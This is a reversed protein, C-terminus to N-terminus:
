EERIQVFPRLPDEFHSKGKLSVLLLKKDLVFLDYWMHSKILEKNRYESEIYRECVPIHKWFMKAFEPNMMVIQSYSPISWKEPIIREMIPYIKFFNAMGQTRVSGVVCVRTIGKNQNTVEFVDKSIDYFVHRQVERLCRIINGASNSFVTNWVIFCSLLFKYFIESLKNSRFLLYTDYLILSILIGVTYLIRPLISENGEFCIVRVLLCPGIPCLFLVCVVLASVCAAIISRTNEATKAITGLAFVSAIAFFIQGVPTSAWDSSLVSFYRAINNAIIKMSELDSPIILVSAGSQVCYTLSLAFPIYFCATLLLTFLWYRMKSIVAHLKAGAIIEKLFLYSFITFYASIAAQYMLLGIVLLAIQAFLWRKNNSTSLYAALITFFMPITMFVNDFRYLMVELIYPNVIIPIFCATAWVDKTDIRFIKLCLIASCALLACSIFQTFPAADTVVNSLYMLLELLFTMHRAAAITGVHINAMYRPYDDNYPCSSVMVSLYGCVAVFFFLFFCRKLTKNANDCVNIEDFINM